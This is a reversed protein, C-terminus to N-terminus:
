APVLLAAQAGQEEVKALVAPILEDLVRTVVPQYGMVSIVSETLEGIEGEPEMKELLRLPLLVEPDADVARHDYHTHAFAIDEFATATPFIRLTYDGLPNPADFPVQEEALYGGATSILVLRAQAADIGLGSPAKENTPRNYRSWDMEGTKRFHALWGNEFEAGWAERNELIEM